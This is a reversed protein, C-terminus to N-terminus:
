KIAFASIWAKRWIRDQGRDAISGLRAYQHQALPALGLWRYVPLPVQNLRLYPESAEYAAAM